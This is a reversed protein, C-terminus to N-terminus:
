YGTSSELFHYEGELVGSTRGAEAAARNLMVLM